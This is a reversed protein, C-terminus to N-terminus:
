GGLVLPGYALPAMGVCIAMCLADLPLGFRTFDLWRYGGPGMVMLHTQYGIPTAFECSAAVCVSILYPMPNLGHERCAEVIIPFMLVAAANNSLLMTFLLTILYVVALLFGPSVDRAWGLSSGAIAAALGTRDMAAGVGFSAAIVILVQWSMEARAQSATCCRLGIMAGAGMMAAVVEPIVGTSMMSIVGGLVGIAAWARHHRPAAAGELANVVHFDPSNRHQEAFRPTAELLLTDGPRLVIDGIKRALQRGQRQVAIVVANYRTRFGGDRISQGILPSSTSVVVEVLRMSPRETATRPTGGEGAQVLGKIKLLDVVSDLLGVFYLVDGARLVEDPGVAIITEDAREIRSLFLGPLQRLGAEELTKGALAAGAAGHAVRMATMYQKAKAPDLLDPAAAPLLRRGFLIMYLVGALAVPVGVATITFMGMRTDPLGAKAWDFSSMLGALVVNTSTGILTCVGGLIAAYSLPMFLHPAAIRARRSLASLVPLFMAVIPTNNIFASLLTVPLVMRVQAALATRPMGIIRRTLLAMAGTEKLGTAVVYLFAVTLVGQNAFGQFGEKLPVVGAVLLLGLVGMMVLDPAVRNSAFAALMVVILAATLWGEWGLTGFGTAQALPIAELLISM